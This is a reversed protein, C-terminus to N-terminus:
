IMSYKTLKNSEFAADLRPHLRGRQRRSRLAQSLYELKTSVCFNRFMTFRPVCYPKLVKLLVAAKTNKTM